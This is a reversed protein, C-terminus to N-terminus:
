FDSATLSVPCQVDVDAGDNIAEQCGQADGDIAAQLLREDANLPM